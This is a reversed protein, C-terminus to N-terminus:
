NTGTGGNRSNAFGVYPTFPLGSQISVIANLKWGGLVKDAVGGVGSLLAKGQGLPLAYSGSFAFRNPVNYCAPGYDKMPYHVDMVGGPCNSLFEERKDSANDLAKSYTYNARFTLGARLRQRLDIQLANYTSVAIRYTIM